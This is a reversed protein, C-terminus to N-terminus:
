FLSDELKNNKLYYFLIILDRVLNQSERESESNFCLLFIADIRAMTRKTENNAATKNWVM